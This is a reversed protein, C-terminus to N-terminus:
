PALSLRHHSPPTKDPRGAHRAARLVMELCRQVEKEEARGAQKTPRCHRSGAASGTDRTEAASNQTKSSSDQQAALCGTTSSLLAAVMLPPPLLLLLLCRLAKEIRVGASVSAELTGATVSESAQGSPKSRNGKKRARGEWGPRGHSCAQSLEMEM